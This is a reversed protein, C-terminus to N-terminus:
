EPLAPVVPAPQVYTPHKAIVEFSDRMANVVAPASRQATIALASERMAVVNLPPSPM